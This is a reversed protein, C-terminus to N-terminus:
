NVWKYFSILPVQGKMICYLNYDEEPFILEKASKTLLEEKTLSLAPHTNIKEVWRRNLLRSSGYSKIIKRYLEEIALEAVDTLITRVYFDKKNLDYHHVFWALPRNGISKRVRYQEFM